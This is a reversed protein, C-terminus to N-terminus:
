SEHRKMLNKAADETPSRNYEAFELESQISRTLVLLLYNLYQTEFAGKPSKHFLPIIGSVYTSAHSVINPLRRMRELEINYNYHRESLWSLDVTSAEFSREQLDNFHEDFFRVSIENSSDIREPPIRYDPPGSASIPGTPDHIWLQDGLKPLKTPKCVQAIEGAIRVCDSTKAIEYIKYKRVSKPLLEKSTKPLLATIIIKGAQEALLVEEQVYSSDISDQSAVFLVMDSDPIGSRISDFVRTGASLQNEDLWIPTGRRLLEFAIRRTQQYDKACHSIFIM